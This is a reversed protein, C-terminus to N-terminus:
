HQVNVDRTAADPSLRAHLEGAATIALDLSSAEPSLDAHLLLLIVVIRLRGLLSDLDEDTFGEGFREVPHHHLVYRCLYRASEPGIKRLFDRRLQESEPDSWEVGFMAAYVFDIDVSRVKGRDVALDEFFSLIEALSRPQLKDTDCAHSGPRRAKKQNEM